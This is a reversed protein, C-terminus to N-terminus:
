NKDSSKDDDQRNIKGNNKPNQPVKLYNEFLNSHKMMAVYVHSFRCLMGVKGELWGDKFEQGYNSVFNGNHYCSTIMIKANYNNWSRVCGIAYVKWNSPTLSLERPHFKGIFVPVDDYLCHHDFSLYIRNHGNQHRKSVYRALPSVIDGFARHIKEDDSIEEEQCM